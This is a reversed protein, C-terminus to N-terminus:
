RPQFKYVFQLYRTDALLGGSLIIWPVSKRFPMPNIGKCELVRYSCNEIMQYASKQTFFRLHTRDLIGSDTYEWTKKFLLKKLVSLHRVNPISAILTADASLKPKLASLVMEPNMLHELVDNMFVCDFQGDPLKPLANEVSDLLVHDLVQRAQAAAEPMVEIGWSECAKSKKISASFTGSGCGIDLSRIVKPPVFPLLEPRLNQYYGADFQPM